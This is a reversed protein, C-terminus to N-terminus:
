RWLKAWLKQADDKFRIAALFNRALHAAIEANVGSQPPLNEFTTKWSSTATPKAGMAELIMIGLAYEDRWKQPRFQAPWAPPAYAATAGKRLRTGDGQTHALGFDVLVAEGSDTIIINEPKVDGHVIGQSHLEGLTQSISHVHRLVTAPEEAAGMLKRLSQGSVFNQVMYLSGDDEQGCALISAVTPLAVANAARVERALTNLASTSNAKLKKLAVIKERANDHARFVAGQGGEGLKELLVYAQRNKWNGTSVSRQSEVVPFLALNLEAFCTEVKELQLSLTHSQCYQRAIELESAASNQQGIKAFSRALFLRAEVLRVALDEDLFWNLATQFAAIAQNFNGANFFARGGLMHAVAFEFHEPAQSLPHCKLAAIEVQATSHALANEAKLALTKFQLYDPLTANLDQLRALSKQCDLGLALRVRVDCQLAQVYYVSHQMHTSNTKAQELYTLATQWREVEAYLEALRHLVVFKFEHQALSLALLLQDKAANANGMWVYVRATELAVDLKFIDSLNEAFQSALQLKALAGLPDRHRNLMIGDLVLKRCRTNEDLKDSDIALNPPTKFELLNAFCQEIKWQPSESEAADILQRAADVCGLRINRQCAEIATM